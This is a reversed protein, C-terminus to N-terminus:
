NIPEQTKQDNLAKQIVFAGRIDGLSFGTAQDHPYLRNITAQLTPDISKGHCNLCLKGTPIAKVMLFTNNDREIFALDTVPKGAAKQQEFKELVSKQWPAPKNELNRPKLSTRSVQWGDTSLSKAIEPAQKHCIEVGAGLGGTKVASTLSGKLTKAFVQIKQKAEELQLESATASFGLVLFLSISLISKFSPM